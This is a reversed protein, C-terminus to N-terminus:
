SRPYDEDEDWYHVPDRYLPPERLQRADRGLEQRDRQKQRQRQILDHTHHDGTHRAFQIALEMMDGRLQDLDATNDETLQALTRGNSTRVQNEVSHAKTEIRTTSSELRGLSRRNLVGNIFAVAVASLATVLTGLFFWGGADM